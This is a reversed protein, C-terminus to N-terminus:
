RRLRISALPLILPIALPHHVASAPIQSLLTPLPPRSTSTTTASVAVEHASSDVCMVPLSVPQAAGFIVLNPDRASKLDLSLM